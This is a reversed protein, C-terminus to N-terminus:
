SGIVDKLSRPHFKVTLGVEKTLVVAPNPFRDRSGPISPMDTKYDVVHSFHARFEREFGEKTVAESPLVFEVHEWGDRPYPHSEKPSPLEVCPIGRGQYALPQQLEFNYIRRENVVSESMPKNGTCVQELQERLKEVDSQLRVRLGAHDINLGSVNIRLEDVYQFVRNMFGPFNKVYAEWDTFM